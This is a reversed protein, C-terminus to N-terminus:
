LNDAKEENIQEKRKTLRTIISRAIEETSQTDTNFYLDFKGDTDYQDLDVETKHITNERWSEARKKRVEEPCNLRVSVCESGRAFTDFEARMRLDEIIVVHNQPYELIKKLCAQPMANDGFRKRVWDGMLQLLDGDKVSEDVEFGFSKVVSRCAGQLAYLLDIVRHVHFDEKNSSLEIIKRALTSKGAGQKGSLVIISV